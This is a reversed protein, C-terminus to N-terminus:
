VPAIPLWLGNKLKTISGASKFLSSSKRNLCRKSLRAAAIMHNSFHASPWFGLGFVSYARIM